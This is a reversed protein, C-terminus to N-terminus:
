KIWSELNPQKSNQYNELSKLMRLIGLVISEVSTSNTVEGNIGIMIQEKLGGVDTSLVPTGLRHAKAILGSQTGELYPLVLLKSGSIISNVEDPKLWDDILTVGHLPEIMRKINRYGAGAIVFKVTPIQSQVREIIEPILQLGQYIKGRGIFLVYDKKQNSINTGTLDFLDRVETLPLIRKANVEVKEKVFNSLFILHDSSKCRQTISRKFPWVEGRHSQDDHIIRTIKMKSLKLIKSIPLDWPHPMVFVFEKKNSRWSSLFILLGLVIFADWRWLTKLGHAIRATFIKSNINTIFFEHELDKPVICLSEIKNKKEIKLISTLLDSGGGGLGWYCYVKGEFGRLDSLSNHHILKKM